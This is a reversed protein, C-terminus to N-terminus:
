FGEIGDQGERSFSSRYWRNKLNLYIYDAEFAENEDGEETEFDGQKFIENVLDDEYTAGLAKSGARGLMGGALGSAAAITGWSGLAAQQRASQEIQDLPDTYLEEFM